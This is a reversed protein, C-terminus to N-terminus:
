RRKGRDDSGNQDHGNTDPWLTAPLCNFVLHTTTPELQGGYQSGSCAKSYAKRQQGVKLATQAITHSSRPM